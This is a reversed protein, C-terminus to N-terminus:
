CFVAYSINAHSSNLRTSKRDLDGRARSRRDLEAKELDHDRKENADWHAYDGRDPLVLPNVIDEAKDRDEEEAYGHEDNSNEHNEQRCPVSAPGAQVLPQSGPRVPLVDPLVRHLIELPHRPRRKDTPQACACHEHTEQARLHQLYHALVIDPGSPSLPKTFADDNHPM